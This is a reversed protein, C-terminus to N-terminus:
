KFYNNGVLAAANYIIIKVSELGFYIKSYKDIDCAHKLTIDLDFKSLYKLLPRLM